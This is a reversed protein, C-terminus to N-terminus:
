HRHRPWICPFGQLNKMAKLELDANPQQSFSSFFYVCTVYEIKSEEKRRKDKKKKRIILSNGTAMGDIHLKVPGHQLSSKRCFSYTDYQSKQAVLCIGTTNRKIRYSTIPSYNIKGNWCSTAFWLIRAIWISRSSKILTLEIQPKSQVRLVGTRSHIMTSKIKCYWSKSSSKRMRTVSFVRRYMPIKASAISSSMGSGVSAKVSSSWSMNIVCLDSSPGSLM